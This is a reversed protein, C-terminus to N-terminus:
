RVVITNLTEERNHKMRVRWLLDKPSVVKIKKDSRDICWSVPQVGSASEGKCFYMNM